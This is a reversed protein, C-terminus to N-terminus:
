DAVGFTFVVSTWGLMPDLIWWDGRTTMLLRYM